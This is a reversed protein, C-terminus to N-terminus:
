LRSDPSQADSPPTARMGVAQLLWSRPGPFLLPVVFAAGLLLAGLLIRDLEGSALTSGFYTYTGSRVFSGVLAALSFAGLSMGTVGAMLHYMTVPGLPFGTGVAIFAVGARSGAVGLLPRLREPLRTELTTRGAWRSGIFLVVASFALGLAGYLTGAVTGFVLGGGVLMVQSPLGLPVRFAVLGMYFLPGWVGMEAVVGRLSEVSFEFGMEQRLVYLGVVLSGVLVAAVMLRLHQM